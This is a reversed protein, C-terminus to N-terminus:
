EKGVRREESRASVNVDVHHTADSFTVVGTADADLGAVTFGVATKESNNITTDSITLALDAGVHANTDLDIAAGNASATNGADDTVNLVSSVPGDPLISLDASLSGNDSLNVDVHHTADSFTVVGTADADHGTDRCSARGIESNNITTDSITLALDDGVDANTDLDIVAGNASATNGADDTVNLVSSV